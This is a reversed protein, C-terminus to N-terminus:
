PSLYHTLNQFQLSHALIVLLIITSLFHSLITSSFETALTVPHKSLPLPFNNPLLLRLLLFYLLTLNYFPSFLLNIFIFASILYLSFLFLTSLILLISFLDEEIFKWFLGVVALCLQPFLSFFKLFFFLFLILFWIYDHICLLIFSQYSLIICLERTVTEFIQHLHM